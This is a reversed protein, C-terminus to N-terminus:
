TNTYIIETKPTDRIDWVDLVDAFVGVIAVM